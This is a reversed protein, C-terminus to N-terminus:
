TPVQMHTYYCLLPLQKRQTPPPSLLTLLPLARDYRKELKSAHKHRAPGVCGDDFAVKCRTYRDQFKGITPLTMRDNLEFVTECATGLDECATASALENRETIQKHTKDLQAQKHTCADLSPPFLDSPPSSM